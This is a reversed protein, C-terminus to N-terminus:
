TNQNVWVNLCHRHRRRRPPSSSSSSSSSFLSRVVVGVVVVVVAVVVGGVPEFTRSLPEVCQSQRRRRRCVVPSVWPSPPGLTLSQVSNSVVAGVVFFAIFLFNGPQLSACSNYDFIRWFMHVPLMYSAYASCHSHRHSLM